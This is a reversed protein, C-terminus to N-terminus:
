RTSIFKRRHEAWLHDEGRLSLTEGLHSLNWTIARFLLQVNQLFSSPLTQAGGSQIGKKSKLLFRFPSTGMRLLYYTILFFGRFGYVKFGCHIVNQFTVGSRNPRSVASLKHHIAGELSVLNKLGLKQVELSLDRDEAMYVYPDFGGVQKAVSRRVMLNSSNLHDCEKIGKETLLTNSGLGYWTISKGIAGVITGEKLVAEGGVEPNDFM